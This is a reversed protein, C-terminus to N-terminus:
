ASLRRNQLEQHCYKEADLLTDVVPLPTASLLELEARVEANLHCLVLSMGHRALRQYYYGLLEATDPPLHHLHSCDVWVSSKGSRSARRLARDLADEDDVTTPIDDALILLYSEPLIERYVEM